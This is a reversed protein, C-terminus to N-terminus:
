PCGFGSGEPYCGAAVPRGRVTVVMFCQAGIKQAPNIPAVLGHADYATFTAADRAGRRPHPLPRRRPHCRHVHRGGVWGQFAFFDLEAGPNVRETGSRSSHRGGPELGGGRHDPPHHRPHRRRRRRRGARPLPRRLDPRRLVPVAPLYGVQQFAQALRSIGTIELATILLQSAPTRSRRPSRCTTPRPSPWRASCRSTSASARCSARRVSPATAARDGPRGVGGGRQHRRLHQRLVPARRRRRQAPSSRTPPSTTRCAPGPMPSASTVDPINTGQSSRRRRRRRHGGVRRRLRLGARCARQTESRNVGTDLRDDAVLLEVSGAACGAPPPTSTPSTPRSATSSPRASGPSRAASRASRASPSATETIGVDSAGAPVCEAASRRRRGEGGGGAGRRQRESGSRRRRPGATRGSAAATPPRRRRDGAPPPRARRPRRRRRRGPGTALAGRRQAARRLRATLLAVCALVLRRMTM